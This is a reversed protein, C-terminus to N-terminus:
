SKESNMMERWIVIGIETRIDYRKLKRNMEQILCAIQTIEEKEKASRCKQISTRIHNDLNSYMEVFSDLCMDETHRLMIVFQKFQVNLRRMFGQPLDSNSEM